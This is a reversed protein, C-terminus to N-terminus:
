PPPLSANETRFIGINHGWPKSCNREQDQENLFRRYNTKTKNDLEIYKNNLFYKMYYIQDVFMYSSPRRAFFFFSLLFFFFPPFPSFFLCFFGVVFLIISLTKIWIKSYFNCYPFCTNFKFWDSPPIFNIHHVLQYM